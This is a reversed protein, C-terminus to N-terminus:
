RRGKAAVLDSLARIADKDKAVARRVLEQKAEEDGALSTQLLLGVPQNTMVFQQRRAIDEQNVVPAADQPGRDNAPLKALAREYLEPATGKLTKLMAIQLDPRKGDTAISVLTNGIDEAKSKDAPKASASRARYANLQADVSAEQDRRLGPYKSSGSDVTDRARREEPREGIPNLIAEATKGIIGREQDKAREVPTKGQLTDIAAKEEDTRNALPARPVRFEGRFQKARMEDRTGAELSQALSELRIGPGEVLDLGKVVDGWTLKSPDGGSAADLMTVDQKSLVGLQWATKLAMTIAMGKSQMFAEGETTAGWTAGHKERLAKIEDVANVITKTAAIQSGIKGAIAPDNVRWTHNMAVDVRIDSAKQAEADARAILAQQKNPDQEKQAAARISESSQDLKDAQASLKDGEPQLFRKGDKTPDGIGREENLKMTDAIQKARVENGKAQAALRAQELDNAERKDFQRVNEAFTQQFQSASQARTARQERISDEHQKKTQERGMAGELVKGREVGLAAKTAEANAIARPSMSQNKLTEIKMAAQDIAAIKLKDRAAQEDRGKDRHMGLIERQQALGARKLEIDQMQGAVKRDIGQMLAKHAPNDGTGQLASAVGGLAVGIAALIPHDISRDIKVDALAKASREYDAMRGDMFQQHAAAKQADADLLQQVKEDRVASADGIKRWEDAEVAAQKDVAQQQQGIAQQQQEYVGANGMGRLQADTMPKATNPQGAPPEAPSVVPGRPARAGDSPPAVQSPSTVPAAIASEPPALDARDQPTFTPAPPAVPLAPPQAVEPPPQLPRLAPFAAALQQPVTIHRGDPTTVDVMDSGFLGM